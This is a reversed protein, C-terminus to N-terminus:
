RDGGQQWPEHLAAEYAEIGRFIGYVVRPVLANGLAKLRAVRVARDLRSPIGDVVRGVDPETAWWRPDRGDRPGHAAGSASGTEVFGELRHGFPHSLSAIIWIRDRQHPAGVASAPICHWEADYGLADLDKLVTGLGRGRLASVNEAVVWRPHIEGILRAFESWLGSRAGEIGAGKGALSIDQCPFGGCLLDVPEVKTGQIRRIDGLNMANPFHRAMVQCAYPDIESYWATRWGMWRAALDFGGVGSFLSGVKM